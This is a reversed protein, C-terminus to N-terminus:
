SKPPWNLHRQAIQLIVIKPLYAKALTAIDPQAGPGADINHRVQLTKGFAQQLYVSLSTGFSDRVFLVSDSSQAGETVTTAPLQTLDTRSEGPVTVPDKGAATLTV